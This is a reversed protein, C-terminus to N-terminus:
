SGCFLVLQVICVPLILCDAIMDHLAAPKLRGDRIGHILGGIVGIGMLARGVTGCPLAVSRRPRRISAERKEGDGMLASGVTGCPM